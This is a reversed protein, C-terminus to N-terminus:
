GGLPFARPEVIHQASVVADLNVLVDTAQELLVGPKPTVEVGAARRLAVSRTSRPRRGGRTVVVNVGWGLVAEPEAGLLQQAQGLLLGRVNAAARGAVGLCHLSSRAPPRLLLQAGGLRLGLVDACAGALLGGVGLLM